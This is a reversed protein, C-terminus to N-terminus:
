HRYVQTDKKTFGEIQPLHWYQPPIAFSFPLYGIKDLYTLTSHVHDRCNYSNGDFVKDFERSIQEM